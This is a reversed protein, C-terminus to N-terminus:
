AISTTKCYRNKKILNFRKNLNKLINIKQKTETRDDKFMLTQKLNIDLDETIKDLADKLDKKAISVATLAPSKFDILDDGSVNLEFDKRDDTSPQPFFMSDGPYLMDRLSEDIYIDETKIQSSPNNPIEDTAKGPFKLSRVKNRAKELIDDIREELTNSLIFSTYSNQFDLQTNVNVVDDVVLGPTSNVIEEILAESNADPIGTATELDTQNITLATQLFNKKQEDYIEEIEEKELPTSFRIPEPKTEIEEEGMQIKVEPSLNLKFDTKLQKRIEESIASSKEIQTNEKFVFQELLDNVLLGIESFSMFIKDNEESLAQYTLNKLYEGLVRHSIYKNGGFYINLAALAHISVLAKAGTGAFNKYLDVPPVPMDTRLFFSLKVQPILILKQSGPFKGHKFYFAIWCDLNTVVNEAWFNERLFDEKIKDREDVSLKEMTLYLNRETINYFTQYSKKAVTVNEVTTLLFDESKKITSGVEKAKCGELVREIFYQWNPNQIEEAAIYDDTVKSEKILTIPQGTSELLDNFRYLLYKTNKFTLLDLKTKEYADFGNLIWRFYDNYNGDYMLNFNIKGKSSDQQNKMCEFISENTDNNKYYINGTKIHIKLDNNELIEKCM